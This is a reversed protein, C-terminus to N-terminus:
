VHLAPLATSEWRMECLDIPPPGADEMTAADDPMSADEAGGGDGAGGGAEGGAGSSAGAGAGAGGSTGAANNEPDTGGEGGRGAEAGASGASGSDVHETVAGEDDTDESAADNASPRAGGDGEFGFVGFDNTCASACLACCVLL